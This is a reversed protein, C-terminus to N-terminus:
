VWVASAINRRGPVCAAMPKEGRRMLPFCDADSNILVTISQDAALDGWYTTVLSLHLVRQGQSLFSVSSLELRPSLRAIPRIM